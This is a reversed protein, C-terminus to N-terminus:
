RPARIGDLVGAGPPTVGPLGLSRVRAELEELRLAYLDLCVTRAARALAEVQDPRYPETGRGVGTALIGVLDARRLMPLALAAAGVLLPPALPLPEHFAKMEVVAPADAGLHLPLGPATAARLTFDGDGDRLYLGSSGGAFEDVAALLAAALAAPSTFHPSKGLFRGLAAERAHWAGFFVREVLGEVWRRVRHFGVFVALAIVADLWETRARQGFSVFHEVLWEVLGFSVLLVATFAAYVLARNIVFGVDIVRHRLIAYTLVVMSGASLADVALNVARSADSGRGFVGLASASLIAFMVLTLGFGVSLWRLRPRREPPSHLRVDIFVATCLLVGAALLLPRVLLVLQEQGVVARGFYYPAILLSCGLSLLAFPPTFALLWPRARSAYGGEFNLWAYALAALALGPCTLGWALHVAALTGHPLSLPALGGTGVLFASAIMLAGADRPRRLAVLAGLLLALLALALDLANELPTSLREIARATVTVTRLQGGHVVQLAVPEGAAFTGRPPALIVDGVGVGAEALPSDPELGLIRHGARTGIVAPTGTYALFGEAGPIVVRPASLLSALVTPVAICGLLTTVCQWFRLRPAAPPPRDADSRHHDNM